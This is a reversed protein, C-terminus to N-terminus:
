FVLSTYAHAYWLMPLSQFSSVVEGERHLQHPFVIRDDLLQGAGVVDIRRLRGELGQRSVIALPVDQADALSAPDHVPHAPRVLIAQRHQRTHPPLPIAPSLLVDSAPALM